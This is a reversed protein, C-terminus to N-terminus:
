PIRHYNLEDIDTQMVTHIHKVNDISASIQFYGSKMNPASVEYMERMYKRETEKLFSSVFKDYMSDKRTLRPVWLLFRKVVVRGADTRNAM